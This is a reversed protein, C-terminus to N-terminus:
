SYITRSSQALGLCITNKVKSYTKLLTFVRPNEAYQVMSVNWAPLSVLSAISTLLM